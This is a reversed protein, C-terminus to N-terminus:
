DVTAVSVPLALRSYCCVCTPSPKVNLLWDVTVIGAPALQFDDFWLHLDNKEPGLWLRVESVTDCGHSADNNCDRNNDYIKSKDCCHSKHISNIKLALFSPSGSRVVSACETQFLVTLFIPASQQGCPLTRTSTPFRPRPGWGAWSLRVERDERDGALRQWEVLFIRGRRWSLRVGAIGAFSNKIGIFELSQDVRSVYRVELCCIYHCVVCSVLWM